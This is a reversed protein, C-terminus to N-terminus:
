EIPGEYPPRRCRTRTGPASESYVHATRALRCSFIPFPGYLPRPRHLRAMCLSIELYEYLENSQGRSHPDGVGCRLEPPLNRTFLYLERGGVLFYPSHDMHLGQVSCAHWVFHFRLQIMCNTRNVREILTHNRSTM